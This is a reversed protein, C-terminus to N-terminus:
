AEMPPSEYHLGPMSMIYANSKVPLPPTGGSLKFMRHGSQWSETQTLYVGVNAQPGGSSSQCIDVKVETDSVWDQVWDILAIHIGPWILLNLSEVDDAKNVKQQFVRVWQDVEYGRYKDWLGVHILYNAVFGICDLGFFRDKIMLKLANADKNERFYRDYVNGTQLKVGTLKEQYECMFDWVQIFHEPQGQGKLLVDIATEGVLENLTKGHADKMYRLQGMLKKSNENGHNIPNQSLYQNLKVPGAMTGLGTKTLYDTFHYPLAYVIPM